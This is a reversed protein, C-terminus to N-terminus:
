AVLEQRQRQVVLAAGREAFHRTLARSLEASPRHREVIEIGVPLQRLRPGRGEFASRRLAGHPDYEEDMREDTVPVVAVSVEQTTDGRLKRALPVVHADELRDVSPAGSAQSLVVAEFRRRLEV